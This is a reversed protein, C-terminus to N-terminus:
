YKDLGEASELGDGSHGSNRIDLTFGAEQATFRECHGM